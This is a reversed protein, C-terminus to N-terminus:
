LWRRSANGAQADLNLGGLEHRPKVDTVAPAGGSVRVEVAVGGSTSSTHTWDVVTNGDSRWETETEQTESAPLTIHKDQLETYGSGPAIGTDVALNTAINGMTANGAGIGAGLTISLATGAGGLIGTNSQVVAGSGDTGSTDVGQFETIVIHGRSANGSITVATTGAGLGSAKMARYLSINFSTNFAGTTAILVWALGTGDTFSSVTRFTGSTAIALIYLRNAVPTWSPTTYVSANASDDDNVVNVATIAM